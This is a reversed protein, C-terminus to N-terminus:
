RGGWIHVNFQSVKARQPDACLHVPKPTIVTPEYWKVVECCSLRYLGGFMAEVVPLYLGFLQEYAAFVHQYKVEIITVQGQWPDILLADPQCWKWWGEADVFAFWPSPLYGPYKEGLHEHVRDEYIIGLRRRGSRKEPRIFPPAEFQWKVTSISGV